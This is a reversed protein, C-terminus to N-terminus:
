RAQPGLANLESALRDLAAQHGMAATLGRILLAAADNGFGRVTQHFVIRTRQPGLPEFVHDYDVTLWGMKGTWMWHSPPEFQTMRFTVGGAFTAVTDPGAVSTSTATPAGAEGLWSKWEGIENFHTWTVDRGVDAVIQRRFATAPTGARFVEVIGFVLLILLLM